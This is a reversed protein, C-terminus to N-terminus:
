ADQSLDDLKTTSRPTIFIVPPKWTAYIERLGANSRWSHFLCEQRKVRVNVDPTFALEVGFIPKISHLKCLKNFNVHGFTSSRDTIAAAM